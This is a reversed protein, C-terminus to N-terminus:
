LRAHPVWSVGEPDAVTVSLRDGGSWRAGNAYECQNRDRDIESWRAKDNARMKAAGILTLSDVLVALCDQPIGDRM